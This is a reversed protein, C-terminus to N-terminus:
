VNPRRQQHRAGSQNLDALGRSLATIMEVADDTDLQITATCRDGNWVSVVVLGAEPHATVRAVRGGNRADSVWAGHTPFLLVTM